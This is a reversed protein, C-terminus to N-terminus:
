WDCIKPNYKMTCSGLPYAGLDVAFNRHALRTFHAVLDRESVEPLPLEDFAAEPLQLAREPVDLDPLSWAARGPVSLDALTPEAAAAALPAAAARGGPESM